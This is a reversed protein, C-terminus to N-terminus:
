ELPHMIDEKSSAFAPVNIWFCSMMEWLMNFPVLFLLWVVTDVGAHLSPLKKVQKTSQNNFTTEPFAIGPGGAERTSSWTRQTLIVRHSARITSRPTQSSLSCVCVPLDFLSGSDSPPTPKPPPLLICAFAVHSLLPASRIPSSCLWSPSTPPPSLVTTLQPSTSSHAFYFECARRLLRYKM